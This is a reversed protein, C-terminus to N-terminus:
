EFKEGELLKIGRAWEEGSMARKSSPQISTIRLAGSGTAVIVSHNILSIEGADKLLDLQGDYLAAEHVLIRENRFTSWATPAPNFALIEQLISRADRSWKIRAEKSSIKPAIPVKGSYSFDDQAQPISGSLIKLLEGKIVSRAEDILLSWVKGTNLNEISIPKSHFYVPGTDMGKELKFLTFGINKAGSAILRQVPAAGRAEPLTSFHLNVWGHKPLKLYREPILQGYAVILVLDSERITNEVDEIKGSEFVELGKERAWRSVPSPIPASSRGQAKPPNTMVGSVEFGSSLVEEFLPIVMAPTGALLIRM